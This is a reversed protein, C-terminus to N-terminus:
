ATTTTETTAVAAAVEDNQPNNTEVLPLVQAPEEEEQREIAKKSIRGDTGVEDVQVAVRQSVGRERQTVGYLRECDIMTRKNHTIIIFHSLGRFQDLAGLFREVNADDLPADVEDLICFPSPKSKFIALLLAIATMAKEGGSLQSNVRPKKGPPKAKIEIGSNLMDVEGDEDAVMQLDASGGGFLQRFTGQPGAFCEKITAFTEEFRTRSVEELEKILSELQERAQDIDEVQKVLDENREELQGEEEIADLNVNGLSKIQQRLEAVEEEVEARNIAPRDAEKWAPYAQSVDLELEELVRDELHERNVETERRTLELAHHDRELVSHQKRAQELSTGSSTQSEAMDTMRQELQGHESEAQTRRASCTEIEREADIIAADFQDAQGSRRSQQEQVERRRAENDERTTEAHRLDRRAAELKEGIQGVDVRASALQEQADHWRQRQTKATAECEEQRADAQRCTEEVTRAQEALSTLEIEHQRMRTSLEDQEADVSRLDRQVRHLDNDLRQLRYEGDVVVNMANNLRQSTEHQRTRAEESEALLDALDNEMLNIRDDLGRMEGDLEAMELRRSLWGSTSGGRSQGVKIRGDAEIVPGDAVVIRWGALPGRALDMARNMSPAIATNALMRSIAHAAHPNPTVLDLIHRIDHLGDPLATASPTGDQTLCVTTSGGTEVLHTRIAELTDLDRVVIAELDRGLAAEVLAADERSTDVLDGLLGHVGTFRDTQDLIGKVADTLGERAQRMEELLHLRSGVGARQHRIDALEQALDGHQKSLKTAQDDHERLITEDREVEVRAAHIEEEATKRNQELTSREELLGTRRADIRQTQEELTKRRGELARRSADIQSRRNSQREREVRAMDAEQAAREADRHLTTATESLQDVRAEADQLQEATAALADQADEHLALLERARTALSELTSRGESLQDEAESRQRQVLDRRQTAQEITGDLELMRQDMQHLEDRLEHRAIEAEQYTAELRNVEEQLAQRQNGLDALRSTLGVLRTQIEDFQDMALTTRQERFRLDLERFSRAKEAQSRVIRLRRETSALQERTRVLNTETRELKREAEVRRLKFKAVGAAEELISRRELPSADVLKAVRGQEIICYAATGVGTDVFLDKVDKLRVKQGNILYESRGDRYLRRAVDVHDADLPLTREGKADPLNEFSLTVTAAGLPKRVASGAFIVDLMAAGRLSKASREGLVWKVADVVNSKGCGNPGVIGVRQADFKFDVPDAFSKFGALTVKALRM